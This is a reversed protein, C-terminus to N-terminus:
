SARSCHYADDSWKHRFNPDKRVDRRTSSLRQFTITFHHHWKPCLMEVNRGRSLTSGSSHRPEGTEVWWHQSSSHWPGTRGRVPRAVGTQKKTLGPPSQPSQLCHFAEIMGDGDHPRGSGEFEIFKWVSLKKTRIQSADLLCMWLMLVCVLPM